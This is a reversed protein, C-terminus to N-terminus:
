LYFATKDVRNDVVQSSYKDRTAFYNVFIKDIIM